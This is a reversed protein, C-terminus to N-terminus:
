ASRHTAPAASREAILDLYRRRKPATLGLIESEGWHYWCALTHVEEYLADPSAGVEAMLFTATDLLADIGRGCSPCTVDLRLEAQPDLRAM